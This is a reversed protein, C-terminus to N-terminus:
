LPLLHLDRRYTFCINLTSQPNRIYIYKFDQCIQRPIGAQAKALFYKSLTKWLISCFNSIVKSYLQIGNQLSCKSYKVSPSDSTRKIERM